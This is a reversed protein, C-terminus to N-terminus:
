STTPEIGDLEVLSVLWPTAALNVGEKISAKHIQYVKNV